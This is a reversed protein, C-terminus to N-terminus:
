KAVERFYAAIDLMAHGALLLLLCGAVVAVVGFMSAGAWVALGAVACLTVFAMAADMRKEYEEDSMLENSMKDLENM